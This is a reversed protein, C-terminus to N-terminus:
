KAGAPLSEINVNERQRAFWFVGSSASLIGAIITLTVPSIFLQSWGALYGSLGFMTIEAGRDITLIRGRMRDPLARQFLTEQIAYEVGIIVRSVFTFISVLLLTPMLGAFAFIIGHIVLSWGIFKSTLARSSLLMEIRRALMMGAFLGFGSAVWLLSVAVDSNWGEKQALVVGGLREFILNIAGGGTAWVINMVIITMVFPDTWFYRLGERMETFFSERESKHRPAEERTAEEPILWVSFASVAFSAANIV